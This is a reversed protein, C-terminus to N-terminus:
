GVTTKIQKLRFLGDQARHLMAEAQEMTAKSEEMREKWNEIKLVADRLAWEIVQNRNTSFFNDYMLEGDHTVNPWGLQECQKEVIAFNKHTYVPISQDFTDPEIALRKLTEPDSEMEEQYRRLKDNGSGDDKKSLEGAADIIILSPIYASGIWFAGKVVQVIHEIRYHEKIKKWGM